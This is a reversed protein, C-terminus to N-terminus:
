APSVPITEVRCGTDRLEALFEADAGDDVVILDFDKTPAISHLATRALKSHDMLLVKKTASRMMARKILVIDPEQHFVETASMASTSAVLLDARLTGIMENCMMGLYSDHTESYEGGLVILRHDGQTRVTEAVPRSNTIVTLPGAEDLQYALELTTTSDDLLVAMGPEILTRAYTALAVKVDKNVQMRYRINAEFVNSPQASVGGRFKRVVGQRALEDLDRHVTMLSVEFREALQTASISGETLVLDAIRQLRSARRAAPEIPRRVASEVAGSM